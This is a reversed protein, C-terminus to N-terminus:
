KLQHRIINTGGSPNPISTCTKKEEKKESEPGQSVDGGLRKLSPDELKASM